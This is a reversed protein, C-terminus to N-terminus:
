KDVQLNVNSVEHSLLKESQRFFVPKAQGM